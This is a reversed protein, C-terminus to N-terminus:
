LNFLNLYKHSRHKRLDLLEIRNGHYRSLNCWDHDRLDFHSVRRHKRLLLGELLISTNLLRGWRNLGHGYNAFGGNGFDLWDTIRFLLGTLINQKGFIPMILLIIILELRKLGYYVCVFCLNEFLHLLTLHLIIILEALNQSLFYELRQNLLLM